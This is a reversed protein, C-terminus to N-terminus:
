VAWNAAHKDQLASTKPISLLLYQRQRAFPNLRGERPEFSWANQSDGSWCLTYFCQGWNSILAWMQYKTLDYKIANENGENKVFCDPM